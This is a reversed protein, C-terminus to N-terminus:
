STFEWKNINTAINNLLKKSSNSNKEKLLLFLKTIHKCFKKYEARRSEFDHCNHRLIKTNTDIEIIYPEKKSGEVKAKIIGKPLNCEILDFANNSISAARNLTGKDIFSKILLNFNTTAGKDTQKEKTTMSNMKELIEKKRKNQWIKLKQKLASSLTLNNNADRILSQNEICENIFSNVEEPSLLFLEFSLKFLLDSQSIFPLDIIKWIYFLLESSNNHPITFNM